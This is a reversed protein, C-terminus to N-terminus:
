LGTGCNNTQTFDGPNTEALAISSITLPNTGIYAVTVSQSASTTGILQDPFTLTQPTFSLPSTQCIGSLAVTQPSNAADDTVTLNAKRIGTRTPKFTVAMTCNGGALVQTGCNNTQTYDAPNLGTFGISTINLTANGTNSLTVNQPASSHAAQVPGFNISTPSLVATAQSFALPSVLAILACGALRLWRSRAKM